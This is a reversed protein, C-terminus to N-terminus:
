KILVMKKTEVFAGAQIRYFYIGSSLSTADFEVEYNGASYEKNVITTIENGLVDYVKLTVFEIKPVSYKITTSTNFPNPYNNSLSYATLQEIGTLLYTYTIKESNVWNSGDWLQYLQEILNNNVDCTYTAKWNNMWNSGDWTQGLQEILNNNGDYTYTKKWSIVWNLGDWSQWLEELLNINGDYTYTSKGSNIWNSGDWTQWLLEIKNNNVDYTYTTKESNVWNYGDWNQYLEEILLFGNDLITKNIITRTEKDNFIASKLPHKIQENPFSKSIFKESLVNKYASDMRNEIQSLLQSHFFIMMLPFVLSVKM